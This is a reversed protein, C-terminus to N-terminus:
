TPHSEGEEKVEEKAEERTKEEEGEERRMGEEDAKM